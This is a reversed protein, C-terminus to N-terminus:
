YATEEFGSRLVVGERTEVVYCNKISSEKVRQQCWM